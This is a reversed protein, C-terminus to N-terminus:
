AGAGAARTLCSFYYRRRGTRFQEYKPTGVPAAYNRLWKGALLAELPPVREKLLKERRGSDLRCAEAVNATVDRTTGEFGARGLAEFLAPAKEEMRSDCHLFFGGPALVRGVEAFFRDLDGYEHSAEVNLVVDFAGGPFSLDLATGTVFRLGPVRAHAVRARAIAAPSLDLGTAEIAGARGAAIEAIGGGRGCSVELLRIKSPLSGTSEAMAMMERYVQLQFREPHDGEAPAYGYNNTSQEGWDWGYLRDWLRARAEISRLERRFRRRALVAGAGVAVAAAGIAAAATLV